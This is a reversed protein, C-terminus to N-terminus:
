ARAWIAEVARAADASLATFDAGLLQGERVVVRGAVITWSVPALPLRDWSLADGAEVADLLVLDATEGEAVAGFKSGFVAGVLRAPGDFLMQWPIEAVRKVRGARAVSQAAAVASAPAAWLTREGATCPGLAGGSSLM